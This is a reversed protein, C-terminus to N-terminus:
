MGLLIWGYGLHCTCIAKVSFPYKPWKCNLITCNQKTNVKTWLFFVLVLVLFLMPLIDQAFRVNVDILNEQLDIQWTKINDKFLQLSACDKIESPLTQWFQNVLYVYSNLLYKNCLNYTAFVNFNWLNYHNQFYISRFYDYFFHSWENFWLLLSKSIQISWNTFHKHLM